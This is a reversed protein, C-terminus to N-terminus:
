LANLHRQLQWCRCISAFVLYWCKQFTVTNRHYANEINLFPLLSLLTIAHFKSSISIFIWETLLRLWQDEWLDSEFLSCFETPFDLPGKGKGALVRTQTLLIDFPFLSKKNCPSNPFTYRLSTEYWMNLLGHRWLTKKRKTLLTHSPKAGERSISYGGTLTTIPTDKFEDPPGRSLNAQGQRQLLFDFTGWWRIKKFWLWVM